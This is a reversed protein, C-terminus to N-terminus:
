PPSHYDLKQGMRRLVAPVILRHFPKVVLFYVRGLRGHFRVVTTAVLSKATAGDEETTKEVLLSLRFDLHRDDEGIVVEDRARGWVEWPGATTAPEFSPAGQPLRRAELTKLGLRAVIRDRLALLAVVWAPPSSLFAAALAEVDGGHREPLWLRYADAYDPREFAAAALARAPVPVREVRQRRGRAPRRSRRTADM